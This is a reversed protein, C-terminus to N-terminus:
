FTESVEVMCTYKYIFVWSFILLSSVGSPSCGPASLDAFKPPQANGLTDLASGIMTCMKQLAVVVAATLFSCSIPLYRKVGLTSLQVCHDGKLSDFIASLSAFM